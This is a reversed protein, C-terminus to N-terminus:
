GHTYDPRFYISGNENDFTAAIELAERADQKLNMYGQDKNRGFASALKLALNTVIAEHWEVPFDPTNSNTDFNEIKRSITLKVIVTSNEPTPWLRIVAEGLQRDYNFSVPTNTADDKNPLQFYEEYALYNMIIDRDAERRVASYVNFPENLKTTYNYVAKGSSAASPLTDGGAFTIVDSVINSITTWFIDNDDLIVGLYDGITMDSPDTVTITSAGLAADAALTTEYYTNTAHDSTSSSLSYTNQNEKTFLIVTEKLWVHYGQAMWSKIMRNLLRNAFASDEGPINESPGYLNLLAFADEIIEVRTSEFVPNGSTAM